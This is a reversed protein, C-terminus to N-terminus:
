CIGCASLQAPTAIWGLGSRVGGAREGVRHAGQGTIVGRVRVLGLGSEGGSLRRTDQGTKVRRRQGRGAVRKRRLAPPPGDIILLEPKLYRALVKADAGVAEDHLFDRVVDFIAAPIPSM